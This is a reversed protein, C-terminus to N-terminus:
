TKRVSQLWNNFALYFDRNRALDESYDDEEQCMQLSEKPSYITLPKVCLKTGHQGDWESVPLVGELGKDFSADINYWKGNIKVELYLHLIENDHTITTIEQPLQLDTWRAECVRPRVELGTKRLLKALMVHKGQCSYDQEEQDLPLCYPIDRVWNFYAVRDM